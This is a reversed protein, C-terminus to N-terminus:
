TSLAENKVGGKEGLRRGNQENGREGHGVYIRWRITVTGEEKEKLGMGKLSNCEEGESKGQSLIKKKYRYKRRRRGGYGGAPPVGM